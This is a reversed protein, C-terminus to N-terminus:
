ADVIGFIMAYDASLEDLKSYLNLLTEYRTPAEEDLRKKLEPDAERV